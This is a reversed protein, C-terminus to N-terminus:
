MQLCYLYFVYKSTIQLHETGCLHQACFIYIVKDPIQKLSDVFGDIVDRFSVDASIIAKFTDVGKKIAGVVDNVVHTFQKILNFGLKPDLEQFLNVIQINYTYHFHRCIGSM